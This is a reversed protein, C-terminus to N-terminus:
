GAAERSLACENKGLELAARAEDDAPRGGLNMARIIEYAEPAPRAEETVQRLFSGEDARLTKQGRRLAGLPASVIGDAGIEHPGATHAPLVLVGDPVAALRRHLTAHLERGWELAKGALDPRGVSSVFLTDGTLLKEGGIRLATSGPTHGPASMFVLPAVTVRGFRLPTGDKIPEFPFAAGRFDEVAAHYVAGTERALAPGGSLHDAHLHTDFVARAKLRHEDLFRRYGELHRHPDVVVADDGAAAVYSLCGKGFRLIQWLRVGGEAARRVERAVTERGWGLMGDTLNRAAIGRARLVDAVYESSGGKACVVVVKEEARAAGLWREVRAVSEDEAELFAFYPINLADVCGPGEVKWHAFEQENRVDLLRPVHGPGLSEYLQRATLSESEANV